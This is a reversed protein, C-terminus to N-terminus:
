LKVKIAQLPYASGWFCQYSHKFSGSFSKLANGALTLDAAPTLLFFKFWWSPHTQWNDGRGMAKQFCHPHLLPHPSFLRIWSLETKGRIHWWQIYCLFLNDFYLPPPPPRSPSPFPATQNFVDVAATTAPFTRSSAQYPAPLPICGKEPGRWAAWTGRAVTKGERSSHKDKCVCAPGPRSASNRLTASLISACSESQVGWHPTKSASFPFGTIPTPHSCKLPFFQLSSPNRGPWVRLKQDSLM